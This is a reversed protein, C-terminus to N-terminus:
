SFHELILAMAVRLGPLLSAKEIWEERTHAGRGRYAGFTTAPVGLSFPINADTSGSHRKPAKGAEREILAACRALLLELADPDVDGMCPRQGLLEAAVTLGMARYAEVVAAFMKAMSELNERRDARYEYLMEAEQAITNVSTGGSIGGVNYTTTGESPVKVDYLTAIMSALGHIANRNGFNAYSHGGETRVTVRWRESGVACDCLGDLTGDLSVVSAVRGAYDKMIQRIGRLNGLGEEGSNFAFLVPKKPELGNELIYRICLLLVCVNATDDGVGPAHIKEADEKVPLPTEDPFVVDTHAMYVHINDRGECGMPLIVNCAEDIAAGKAGARKLWDLLFAARKEEHNSPAPIAAM